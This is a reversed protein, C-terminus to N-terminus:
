LFLAGAAALTCLAALLTVAWASARAPGLDAGIELDLLLFRIGAFLHHTCAWVVGLAVLKNFPHALLDATRAYGREGALSLELFYLFVPLMAILGAGSIRHLISAIGPIPLRIRLLDLNKPRKKPLSSM